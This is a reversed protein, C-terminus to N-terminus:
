HHRFPGAEALEAMDAAIGEREQDLHRALIARFDNEAIWHASYTPHPLYGRQLKHEGQAGAEVRPLGHAIAWDIAQYYCLEFHLFRFEAASGWLRGYLADEGVLNLAGAVPRGDQFAMILVVRDAMAAGLRHFFERTLYANAWKREITDLYFAHFADWHEPCLDAGSLARIELGLAAAQQREKRIAKRKRSALESLFDDFCGYGKNIWHYQHGLRPLLGAAHLRHWEPETPFTVHLSSVGLREALEIMGAILLDQLPEPALDPRVLLRRGTVPTFPVACQLKPYYRRGARGYAEAWAWDFVYEGYSHTKLYLPACALLQGSADEALLHRPAWGSRTCASGSEEMAKLYAHGVFPDAAGACANWHDALVEALSTIVRLTVSANSKTM